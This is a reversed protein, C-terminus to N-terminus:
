CTVSWKNQEGYKKGPFSLIHLISSYLSPLINWIITYPILIICSRKKANWSLERSYGGGRRKLVPINVTTQIWIFLNTHQWFSFLILITAYRHQHCDILVRIWNVMKKEWANSLMNLIFTFIIGKLPGEVWFIYFEYIKLM